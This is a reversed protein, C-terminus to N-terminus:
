TLRSPTRSFPLVNASGVYRNEPDTPKIIMM